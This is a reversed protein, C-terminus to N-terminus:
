RVKSKNVLEKFKKAREDKNFKLAWEWAKKYDEPFINKEIRYANNAFEIGYVSEWVEYLILYLKKHAELKNENVNLTEVGNTFLFRHLLEHILNARKGVSKFTSSLLLPYSM